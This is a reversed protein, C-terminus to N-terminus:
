KDRKRNKAALWQWVKCVYSLCLSKENFMRSLNHYYKAHSIHGKNLLYDNLENDKEYVCSENLTEIFINIM